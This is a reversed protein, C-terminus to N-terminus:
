RPRLDASTLPRWGPKRWARREPRLRVIKGGRALFEATLIEAERRMENKSM